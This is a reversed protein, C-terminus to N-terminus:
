MKIHIQYVYYIFNEKGEKHGVEELKYGNEDAIKKILDTDGFSSWCIYARGGPKLHNSVNKFFKKVSVHNKDWFSIDHSRTAPHDTFPPNWTIVDFRTKVKGFVDAKRVVINLNLLKSNRRANKLADPNLDTALVYTAGQKKAYLAVLGTGTGIDWVYDGDNVVISNCLLETDTSGKYVKPGVEYTIGALTRMYPKRTAMEDLSEAQLKLHLDNNNNTPNSM